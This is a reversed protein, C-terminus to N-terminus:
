NADESKMEADRRREADPGVNALSAMRKAKRLFIQLYAALDEYSEQSLSAPFTLVVDGEALAFVERRNDPCQSADESHPVHYTRHVSPVQPTLTMNATPPTMVNSAHRREVSTTTTQESTAMTEEEREQDALKDSDTLVAFAITADYVKLFERAGADSFGGELALQDIAAPDAPRDHGWESWFKAIQKPRLAATKIIERRTEEQQARLYRRGEDSIIVFRPGGPAPSGQYELLGFYRLAAAIRDAYAKAKISWAEGVKEPRAPIRKFYAEFEALRTLATDLPIVPYAPSRDRQGPAAAEADTM